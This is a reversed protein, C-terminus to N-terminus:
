TILKLGIVGNAKKEKSNVVVVQTGPLVQRNVGGIREFRLFGNKRSKIMFGIEDMHGFILVKPANEKKNTYSM